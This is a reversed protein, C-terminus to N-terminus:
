DNEGKSLVCMYRAGLEDVEQRVCSDVEFGDDVLDQLRSRLDEKAEKGKPNQTVKSSIVEVERVM